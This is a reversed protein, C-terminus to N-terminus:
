GGKGGGPVAAGASLSLMLMITITIRSTHMIAFKGPTNPPSTPFPSSLLSSVQSVCM